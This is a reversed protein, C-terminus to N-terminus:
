SYATETPCEDLPDRKKRVAKIPVAESEAMKLLNWFAELLKSLSGVSLVAHIGNDFCKHFLSWDANPYNPRRRTNVREVKIDKDRILFLPLHDSGLVSIAEWSFRHAM